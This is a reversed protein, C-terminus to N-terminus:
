QSVSVVRFSVRREMGAEETAPVQGPAGAAIDSRALLRDQPIGNVVLLSFVKSAREQRLRSNVESSGLSDAHGIVELRVAQGAVEAAAFLSRIAASLDVIADLQGPLIDFAGLNFHISRREIETRQQEFGRIAAFAPHLSLFPEGEWTVQRPDIGTDKLLRVPDRSLPDRLGKLYYRGERREAHTVLIGPEAQLREVYRTWRRTERVSAALVVLGFLVALGAIVALAWSPLRWRRRKAAANGLLCGELLPKTVEFAGSDGAFAELQGAQEQHVRELTEQFVTSLGRPPVGRVIGALLLQPGHQIWVGLDGMQITELEDKGGDAFSDRVFDQIVTLMAFVLDPDRVINAVAVQQLLLGTEKHILFIQEVKYLVSRALVIEGYSRGTRWAELRWQLGRLSLSQELARNLSQTMERLAAAIAKRISRGIVPYITETLIAPDQRVLNRLVNEIVGSLSRGIENDRAACIRIAEALVQSVDKARLDPDELREQLKRLQAREPGVLLIRLQSFEDSDGDQGYHSRDSPGLGPFLDSM